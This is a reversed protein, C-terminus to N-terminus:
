VQVIADPPGAYRAVSHVCGSDRCYCGRVQWVGGTLSAISNPGFEARTYNQLKCVTPLTTCLWESSQLPCSLKAPVVHVFMSVSNSARIAHSFDWCQVLMAMSATIHMGRLSMYACWWCYCYREWQRNYNVGYRQTVLYGKWVCDLLFITGSCSAQVTQYFRAVSLKSAACALVLVM